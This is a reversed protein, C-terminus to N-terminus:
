SRIRSQIFAQLRDPEDTGIRLRKGSVLTLEVADLGSVNYLWGRGYWRIGWGCFWRNRVKEVSKIDNYNIRKRVIGPGFYFWLKESDGKITLSSFLLIIVVLIIGTMAPYPVPSLAAGFGLILIIPATLVLIAWGIQRHEYM